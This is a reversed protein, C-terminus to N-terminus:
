RPKRRISLKKADSADDALGRGPACLLLFMLAAIITAPQKM